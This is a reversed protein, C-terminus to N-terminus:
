FLTPVPTFSLINSVSLHLFTPRVYSSASQTPNSSLSSNFVTGLNRDQALPYFFCSPLDTKPSPLWFSTGAERLSHLLPSINSCRQESCTCLTPSQLETHQKYQQKSSNSVCQWEAKIRAPMNNIKFILLRAQLHCLGFKPFTSGWAQRFGLARILDYLSLKERWRKTHGNVTM